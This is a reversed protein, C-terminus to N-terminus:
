KDNPEYENCATVSPYQEKKIVLCLFSKGKIKCSMCLSNDPISKIGTIDYTTNLEIVSM